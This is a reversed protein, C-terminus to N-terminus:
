LLDGAVYQVGGIVINAGEVSGAINIGGTAPKLFQLAIWDDRFYELLLDLQNRVTENNKASRSIAQAGFLLESRQFLNVTELLPQVDQTRCILSLTDRLQPSSTDNRVPWLLAAAIIGYPINITRDEDLLGAFLHFSKPIESRWSILYEM